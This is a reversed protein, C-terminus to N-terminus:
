QWKRKWWNRWYQAFLNMNFPASIKQFPRPTTLSFYPQWSDHPYADAYTGPGIPGLPKNPAGFNTEIFKLISGFDRPSNDVYGAPTYASVVLLPIRFGYIYGKGWGGEQGIRYPAVHDYWGGWDDWTILIATNKWYEEGTKFCASNKGLTNVISAIWAPGSGDNNKPHDSDKTRPMVWSVSALKCDEIDFLVNTEPIVVNNVWDPGTCELEGNVTKPVCIHNIAAPATFMSGPTPAYYKWSVKADNLVDFLTAHDFCPYIGSTAEEDGDPDVQLVKQDAPAICGTPTISPNGSAFMPSDATPASTGSIIFQHAPFTPGQNTQFMRNAFGYQKAIDFYPQVEGKSNDVYKFQPDPPVTCGPLPSTKNKDAGDMKGKNYMTVFGPHRHDLDYCNAMPIPTLPVKQGKSNIGFTGIDVGPEFNPNSGFLNDPTRNEQVIFIIHKFPVAQASAANLILVNSILLILL